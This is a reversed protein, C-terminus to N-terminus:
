YFSVLLMKQGKRPIWFIHFLIEEPSLLYKVAIIVKVKACYNRLPKVDSKTESSICHM